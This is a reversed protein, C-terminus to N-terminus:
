SLHLLVIQEVIKARADSKELRSELETWNKKIIQWNLDATTKIEACKTGVTAELQGFNHLLVQIDARLAAAEVCQRQEKELLAKLKLLRQEDETPM